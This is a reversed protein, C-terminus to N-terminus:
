RVPRKAPDAKPQPNAGSASRLGPRHPTGIDLPLHWQRSPDTETEDNDRDHDSDKRLSAGVAVGLAFTLGNVTMGVALFILSDLTM